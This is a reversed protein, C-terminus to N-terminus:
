PKGHSDPNGKFRRVRVHRESLVARGVLTDRTTIDFSDLFVTM